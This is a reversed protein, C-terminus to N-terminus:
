SQDACMVFPVVFQTKLREIPLLLLMEHLFDFPNRDGRCQHCRECKCPCRLCL